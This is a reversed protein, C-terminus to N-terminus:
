PAGDRQKKTRLLARLVPTTQDALEGAVIKKWDDGYKEKKVRVFERLIAKVEPSPDPTSM